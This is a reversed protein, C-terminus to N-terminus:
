DPWCLSQKATREGAGGGWGCGAAHLADDFVGGARGRRRQGGGRRRPVRGPGGPRPNCCPAPCCPTEAEAQLVVHGKKPGIVRGAARAQSSPLAMRQRGASSPLLAPAPLRLAACPPPPAGGCLHAGRLHTRPPLRPRRVLARRAARGAHGGAAPRPHLAGARGGGRVAGAGAAPAPLSLLRQANAAALRRCGGSACPCLAAGACRAGPAGAGGCRAPRWCCAKPTPTM